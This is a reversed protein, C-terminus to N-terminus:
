YHNVCVKRIRRGSMWCVNELVHYASTSVTTFNVFRHFQLNESACIIKINVAM